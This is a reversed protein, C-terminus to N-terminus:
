SFFNLSTLKFPEGCPRRRCQECGFIQLHPQDSRYGVDWWPLMSHVLVGEKRVM